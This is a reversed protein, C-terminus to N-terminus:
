ASRLGRTEYVSPSPGSLGEEDAIARDVVEISKQIDVISLREKDFYNSRGDAAFGAARGAHERRLKVLQDRVARLDEASM